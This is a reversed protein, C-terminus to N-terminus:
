SPIGLREAVLARVDRAVAEESRGADIRAVYPRDLARFNEAVM